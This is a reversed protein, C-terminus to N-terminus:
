RLRTRLATRYRRQRTGFPYPFFLVRVYKFPHVSVTFKRCRLVNKKVHAVFNKCIFTIRIYKQFPVRLVSVYHQFGPKINSKANLRDHARVRM